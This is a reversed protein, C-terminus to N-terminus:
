TVTAKHISKTSLKTKIELESEKKMVILLRNISSLFMVSAALHPIIDDVVFVVTLFPFTSGSATMM